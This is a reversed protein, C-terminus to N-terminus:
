TCIALGACSAGHSEQNWSESTGGARLSLRLRALQDLQEWRGLDVIQVALFWKPRDFHNKEVTLVVALWLFRTACPRDYTRWISRHQANMGVCQSSHVYWGRAPQGTQTTSIDDHITWKSKALSKSNPRWSKLVAGDSLQNLALLQLNQCLSFVATKWRVTDHQWHKTAKAEAVSTSRDRHTLWSIDHAYISLGPCSLRVDNLM